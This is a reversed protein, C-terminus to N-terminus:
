NFYHRAVTQRQTPVLRLLNIHQMPLHRERAVKHFETCTLDLGKIFILPSISTLLHADFVAYLACKDCKNSMAISQFLLFVSHTNERHIIIQLKQQKDKADCAILSFAHAEDITDIVKDYALTFVDIASYNMFRDIFWDKAERSPYEISPSYGLRGEIYL